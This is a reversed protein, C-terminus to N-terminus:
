PPRATMFNVSRRARDKANRGDSSAALARAWPPSSQAEGVTIAPTPANGKLLANAVVPECPWFSPIQKVKPCVPIWRSTQNVHTAVALPAAVM